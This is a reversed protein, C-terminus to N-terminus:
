RPPERKYLRHHHLPIPSPNIDGVCPDLLIKPVMIVLLAIIYIDTDTTPVIFFYAFPVRPYLQGIFVRVNDVLGM